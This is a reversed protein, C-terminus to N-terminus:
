YDVLTRAMVFCISKNNKMMMQCMMLETHCPVFFLSLKRFHSKNSKGKYKQKVTLVICPNRGTDLQHWQIIKLIM